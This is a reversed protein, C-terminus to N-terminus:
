TTSRIATLTHGTSLTSEIFELFGEEPHCPIVDFPVLTDGARVVNKDHADFVGLNDEKRYYAAEAIREFGMSSFWEDIEGQTVANLPLRPQSTLISVDGKQFVIGELRNLQPTLTTNQLHLRELYLYPSAEWLHFRRGDEASSVLAIEIGPTFGFVGNRTLKFYRDAKEEVFIDHEQGGREFKNLFSGAALSLGLDESWGKLCDEQRSSATKWYSDGDRELSRRLHHLAQVILDAGDERSLHPAQDSDPSVPESTM